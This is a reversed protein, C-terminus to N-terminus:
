KSRPPPAIKSSDQRDRASDGPFYALEHSTKYPNTYSDTTKWTTSGGVKIKIGDPLYPAHVKTKQSSAELEDVAGKM